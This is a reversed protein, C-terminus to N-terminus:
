SLASSPACLPLTRRCLCLAPGSPCKLHASGSLMCSTPELIKPQLSLPLGSWYLSLVTCDPVADSPSNAETPGRARFMCCLVCHSTGKGRHPEQGSARLLPLARGQACGLLRGGGRTGGAGLEPASGGDPPKNCPCLTQRCQRSVLPTWPLLVVALSFSPLWPM